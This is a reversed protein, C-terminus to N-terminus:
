KLLPLIATHVDYWLDKNRYSLVYNGLLLERGVEGEPPVDHTQLVDLLTRRYATTLGASLDRRLAYVAEWAVEEGIRSQEALEAERAAYRMLSILDRMVGASGAVLVDLGEPTIIEDPALKLPPSALRQRVVRRMAEYGGGPSLDPEGPVDPGQHPAHLRVNPFPYWPFSLKVQGFALSYYLFIPTTYVVRCHPADLWEADTAFLLRATEFSRIRDLGDILFLVQVKNKSAVEAVLLNLASQIDRLRPETIERKRVDELTLGSDFQFLGSVTRVTQGAIFAGLPGAAVEGALTAAFCVLNDLTDKPVRYTRSAKSEHVLTELSETLAQFSTPDPAAPLVEAALKYLAAGMLFLVDPHTVRDIGPVNESIDVWVVFYQPFASALDAALRTLETTKGSSRHGFLLAHMPDSDPSLDARLRALPSHPRAVFWRDMQEPRIAEYPDFINWIPTWFEHLSEKM